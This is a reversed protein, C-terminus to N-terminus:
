HSRGKDNDISASPEVAQEPQCSERSKIYPLLQNFWKGYDKDEQFRKIGSVSKCTLAAKKCESICKKFKNRTQVVSFKYEGGRAQCRNTVEKVVKLYVEGNKSKRTNTFILKKRFYEDSCIVDVLEDTLEVPWLSKKGAKKKQNRRFM